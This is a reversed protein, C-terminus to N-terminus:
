GFNITNIVMEVPFQRLSKTLVRFCRTFVKILKLFPFPTGPTNAEPLHDPSVLSSKCYDRFKNPIITFLKPYFPNM